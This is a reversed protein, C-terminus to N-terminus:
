LTTALATVAAVTVGRARVFRRSTTHSGLVAVTVAVILTVTVHM